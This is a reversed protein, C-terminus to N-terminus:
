VWPRNMDLSHVVLQVGAGARSWLWKTLAQGKSYHFVAFVLSICGNGGSSGAHATNQDGEVECSNPKRHRGGSSDDEEEKEHCVNGMRGEGGGGLLGDKRVPEISLTALETPWVAVHFSLKGAELLNKEILLSLLLSSRYYMYYM